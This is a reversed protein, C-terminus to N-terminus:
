FPLKPTIRRRDCPDCVDNYAGGGGVVALRFIGRKIRSISIYFVASIRDKTNFTNLANLTTLPMLPKIVTEGTEGTGETEETEETEGDLGFGGEGKDLSPRM